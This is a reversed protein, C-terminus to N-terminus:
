RLWCDLFWLEKTEILDFLVDLIWNPVRNYLNELGLTLLCEIHLRWAGAMVRICHFLVDTGDM